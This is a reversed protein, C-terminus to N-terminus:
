KNIRKTSEQRRPTTYPLADEEIQKEEETAQNKSPIKTHLHYPLHPILETDSVSSRVTMKLRCLHRTIPVTIEGINPRCLRTQLLLHLVHLHPQCKLINADIDSRTVTLKSKLWYM